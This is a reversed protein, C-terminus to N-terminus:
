ILKYLNLYEDETPLLKNLKAVKIYKFYVNEKIKVLCNNASLKKKDSCTKFAYNM